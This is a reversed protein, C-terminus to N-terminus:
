SVPEATTNRWACRERDNDPHYWVGAFWKGPQGVEIQQKCHRCVARTPTQATVDDM